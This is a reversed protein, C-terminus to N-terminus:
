VILHELLRSGSLLTWIKLGKEVSSESTLQEKAFLILTAFPCLKESNLGLYKISSKQVISITQEFFWAQNLLHYSEKTVM